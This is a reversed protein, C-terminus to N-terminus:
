TNLTHSKASFLGEQLDSPSPETRTLLLEAGDAQDRETPVIMIVSECM